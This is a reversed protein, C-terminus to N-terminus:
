LERTTEVNEQRQQEERAEKRYQVWWRLTYIASYVIVIIIVVAMLITWVREFASKRRPTEDWYEFCAVEWLVGYPDGPSYCRFQSPDKM